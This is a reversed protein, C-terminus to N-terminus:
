GGPALAACLHDAGGRGGRRPPIRERARPEARRALSAGGRAHPDVHAGGSRSPDPRTERARAGCACDQRFGVGRRPRGPTAAEAMVADPLRVGFAREIRVLLEVRELSGLGLDRELSDDLAVRSGARAGGLEAILAEVLELIEREIAVRGTEASPASPAREIGRSTAAKMRETRALAIGERRYTAPNQGRM